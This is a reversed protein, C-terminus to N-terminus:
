HLSKILGEKSSSEEIKQQDIILPVLAKEMNIRGYGIFIDKGPNSSENVDDASFKIVYMIEDATLWPKISKILAALGSVHPTSASTGDGWGYPIYGPPTLWTPYTSLIWKGPAAVDIQSGFNSWSPRHDNYDTAAVALCYDDYAAPYLVFGGNNGSAAAVVVDNQHAYQVANKLSFSDASGGLSLNVVDADHDVAWIVGEMIWSYLGEGTDDLVKVPLLKCNWAVGAMGENNNTDAAAIGAVFTGHGEDDEAEFDSNVFDYGSSEIKNRLDPHNLEIGTDVIAILIDESGKTEEWAATAKIDASAQGQPSGPPGVYQGENYLAYQYGFLTDNPTVTKYAIYDPEAFEVYQHQRMLYLMEDVSFNEPVRIKFVNIHPIVKYESIQFVNITAKIYEDPISSRFKVLIYETSYAIKSQSPLPKNTMIDSLNQNNQIDLISKQEKSQYSFLGTTCLIFVAILSYTHFIKSKKM